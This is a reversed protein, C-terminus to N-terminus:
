KLEKLDQLKKYTIPIRRDITGGSWFLLTLLKIATKDDLVCIESVLKLLKNYWIEKRHREDEFYIYVFNWFHSIGTGSSNEKINNLATVLREELLM